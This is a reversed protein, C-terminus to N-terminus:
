RAAVGHAAGDPAASGVGAQLEALRQQTLPMMQDRVEPWRMMIADLATKTLALAQVPGMARASALRPTDLLLAMEGLYDGEHLIAVQQEGAQTELFVEVQGREIVAMKDGVDGQRAILEGDAFREPTLAQSIAELVEPALGAFIPVRQLRTTELSVGVGAAVAGQQEQYLRAYLGHAAMLEAHTGQETLVGTELVFIYDSQAAQALRHTVAITTLDQAVRGLTAQIQAETQPDLASTAEDLLLVVPNRLLARAIAM